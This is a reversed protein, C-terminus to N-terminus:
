GGRDRADDAGRHHHRLHARPKGARPHRAHVDDHGAGGGGGAADGRGVASAALEAARSSLLQVAGHGATAHSPRAPLVDGRVARLSFQEARVVIGAAQLDRREASHGSVSPSHSSPQDLQVRRFQEDALSLARSLRRFARSFPPRRAPRRPSVGIRFRRM